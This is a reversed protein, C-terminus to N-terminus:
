RAPARRPGDVGPVREALMLRFVQEWGAVTM